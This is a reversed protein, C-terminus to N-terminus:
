GRCTQTGVGSGMTILLQGAAIEEGPGVHVRTVTGAHPARIEMQMKMAEMIALAQGLEVRSGEGVHVAIVVGPMPSRVEDSRSSAHPGAASGIRRARAVLATYAHGDLSVTWPTAPDRVVLEHCSGDVVLTYCSPVLETLEIRHSTGAIMVQLGGDGSHDIEVEFEAAGVQVWYRKV